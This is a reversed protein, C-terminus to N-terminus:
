YVLWLPVRSRKLCALSLTCIECKMGTKASAAVSSAYSCSDKVEPNMKERNIRKRMSLEFAKQRDEELM